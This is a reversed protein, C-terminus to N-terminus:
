FREYMNKHRSSQVIIIAKVITKMFELYSFVLVRM